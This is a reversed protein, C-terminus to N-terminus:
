RENAADGSQSHHHALLMRAAVGVDVGWDFYNDVWRAEEVCLAIRDDELYRALQEVMASDAESGDFLRDYLELCPGTATLIQRLLPDTDPDLIAQYSRELAEFVETWPGARKLKLTSSQYGLQGLQRFGELTRAHDAKGTRLQEFWYAEAVAHVVTLPDNPSYSNVGPMGHDQYLEVALDIQGTLYAQIAALFRGPYSNGYPECFCKWNFDVRDVDVPEYRAPDGESQHERPCPGSWLVDTPGTPDLFMLEGRIVIPITATTPPPLGLESYRAAVQELENLLRNRRVKMVGVVAMATAVAVVLVVGLFLRQRM